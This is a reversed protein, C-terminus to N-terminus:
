QLITNSSLNTPYPRHKIQSELSSDEFLRIQTRIRPKRVITQNPNSDKLSRNEYEYKHPFLIKIRYTQKGNQVADINLLSDIICKTLEKKLVYLTKLVLESRSTLVTTLNHQKLM